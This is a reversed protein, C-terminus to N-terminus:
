RFRNSITEAGRRWRERDGSLCVFGRPQELDVRWVGGQLQRCRSATRSVRSTQHHAGADARQRGPIATQGHGCVGRREGAGRAPAGRDGFTGSRQLENSSGHWSAGVSGRREASEGVECGSRAAPRQALAIPHVPSSEALGDRRQGTRGPANATVSRRPARARGCGDSQAM